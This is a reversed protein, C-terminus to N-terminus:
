GIATSGAHANTFRANLVKSFYWWQRNIIEYLPFRGSFPSICSVPHHLGVKTPQPLRLWVLPVPTALVQLQLNFISKHM